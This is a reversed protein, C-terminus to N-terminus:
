MSESELSGLKDELAARLANYESNLNEIWGNVGELVGSAGLNELDLCLKAFRKAGLNGARGKLGHSEFRVATPNNQKLAEQLLKLHVPSSQLFRQIMPILINPQGPGNLEAYYDELFQEDLIPTLM